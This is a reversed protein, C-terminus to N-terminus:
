EDKRILPLTVTVSTFVDKESNISLGYENGMMLKIRKNVNGIGMGSFRLKEENKKEQFLRPITEKSMGVGNDTVVFIIQRDKRYGKLSVVGRRKMPEIGHIVANEVIPQLIFRPMYCSFMEPEVQISMTFKGLLRYDQITIYSKIQNVEEEVTHFSDDNKMSNRLLDIIANVLKSISEEKRIQAIYSVTNLTNALFHPNIQAQLAQIELKRKQKESNKEQEMLRNIEHAMRNFQVSLRTIEDSGSEDLIVQLNGKEFEEMGTIVQGLPHLISSTFIFTVVVGLLICSISIVLFHILVTSLEEQLHSAPIMFFVRWDKGSIRRSLIGMHIQDIDMYQFQGANTDMGLLRERDGASPFLKGIPIQDDASSIVVGSEDMIFMQAGMSAAMDSYIDSLRSEEAQSVIYGLIEGTQSQKVAKGVILAGKRKIITKSNEADRNVVRFVCKGNQEYCTKLFEEAYENDLNVNAVEDGYANMQKGDLTCLIIGSVVNDFVYKKSLEKTINIKALNLERSSLSDYHLLVDQIESMYSNEISDNKIKELKQSVEGAARNMIEDVSVFVKERILERNREYSWFSFFVMPVLTALIFMFLLRQFINYKRMVYIMSVVAKRM